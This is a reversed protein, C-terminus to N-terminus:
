VVSARVWWGQHPGLVQHRPALDQAEHGVRVRLNLRTVPSVHNAKMGKGPYHGPFPHLGVLRPEGCTQVRAFPSAHMRVHVCGHMTYHTYAHHMRAHTCPQSHIRRHTHALTRNLMCARMLVLTCFHMCAHTCAHMHAHTFTHVHPQTHMLAHMRVICVQTRLRARMRVHACTYAHTRTHTCAHTHVISAHTFKHLPESMCAHIRTHTKLKCDFLVHTSACVHRRGSAFAHMRASNRAHMNAHIGDVM